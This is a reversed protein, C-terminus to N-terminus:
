LRATIRERFDCTWFDNLILYCLSSDFCRFSANTPEDTGCVVMFPGCSVCKSLLFFPYGPNPLPPQLAVYSLYFLTRFYRLYCANQVISSPIVNDRSPAYAAASIGFPTHRKHWYVSPGVENFSRRRLRSQCSECLRMLAAGMGSFSPWQEFIGHQPMKDINPEIRFSSMRNYDFLRKGSSPKECARRCVRCISNLLISPM